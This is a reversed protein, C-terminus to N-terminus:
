RSFNENENATANENPSRPARRFGTSTTASSPRALRDGAALYLDLVSATLRLVPRSAAAGPASTPLLMAM